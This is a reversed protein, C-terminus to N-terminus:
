CMWRDRHLYGWVVLGLGVGALVVRAITKGSGEDSGRWGGSVRNWEGMPHFVNGFTQPAPREQFFERDIRTSLLREALGPWLARLLANRKGEGGVIVERRPHRALAVITKAVSEASYIPPVPKTARGMFNAAHQFIPTDHTSGLVTCVHIDPADELEMRLTNGLNSIAAKSASYPAQYKYGTIGAMSSVNILVGRRQQRFIPLAARAGHIYGLLNTEIVKRFVESPLDELKGISTVAAGNVWVDLRGFTELVQHALSLVEEEDGVDVPHVLTIAGLRDCEVATERLRPEDRAALVVTAGKRAFAHATERGIGSSAGTIVVVSRPLHIGHM